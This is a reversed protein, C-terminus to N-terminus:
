GTDTSNAGVFVAIPYGKCNHDAMNRGSFQAMVATM